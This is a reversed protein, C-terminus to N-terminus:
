RMLVLKSKQSISLGDILNLLLEQNKQTLFRMDLPVIDAKDIHLHLNETFASLNNEFFRNAMDAQRVNNPTLMFDVTKGAYPGSQFVFDASGGEVRGLTGGLYTELEAAASAEGPQIKGTAPDVVNLRKFAALDVADRVVVTTPGDSSLSIVRTTATPVPPLTARLAQFGEETLQVPRGTAQDLVGVIQDGKRLILQGSAVAFSIGYSAGGIAEGATADAVM